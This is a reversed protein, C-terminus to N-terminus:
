HIYIIECVKIDTILETPCHTRARGLETIVLCQKEMYSFKIFSQRNSFEASCLFNKKRPNCKM